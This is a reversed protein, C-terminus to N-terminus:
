LRRRYYAYYWMLWCLLVFVASLGGVLWWNIWVWSRFEGSLSGLQVVYQGPENDVVVFNLEQSQGPSLSIQTTDYLQQNVKLNASYSGEQGGNNAVGATVSANEGVRVLFTMFNGPGIRDVSPAINLNSVVFDVSPVEGAVAVKGTVCESVTVTQTCTATNGHTDTVTWTVITDGIPFMFPADNTIVAVDNQFYITPTGLEIESATSLGPDTCVSIGDLCIIFFETVEAVTGPPEPRPPPPKRPPSPDVWHPPPPTTDIVNVTRTVQTADHGNCDTVDYTVTYPGGVASTDVTDGGIVIDNDDVCCADTAYAGHETYTDVGM